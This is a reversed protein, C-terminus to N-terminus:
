DRSEFLWQCVRLGWWVWERRGSALSEVRGNAQGDVADTSHEHAQHARKSKQEEKSHEKHDQQTM